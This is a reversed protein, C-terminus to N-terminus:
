SAEFRSGPPRAGEPESSASAGLHQRGDGVSRVATKSLTSEILAYVDEVKIPVRQPPGRRRPESRALAVPPATTKLEKAAAAADPCPLVVTSMPLTVPEPRGTASIPTLRLSNHDYGPLSARLREMRPRASEDLAILFSAPLEPQQIAEVLEALFRAVGEHGAPAALLQEFRDLLFVIHLGTRRNLQRLTDTLSASHAPRGMAPLAAIDDIRAKLHALPNEDWTDVYLAAEIRRPAQGLAAARRRDAGAFEAERLAQAAARDAMRRQLLPMVGSKLLTATDTGPEGFVCTLRSTRLMVALLRAEHTRIGPALESRPQPIRKTM